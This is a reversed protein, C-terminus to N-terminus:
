RFDRMTLVPELEEPEDSDDGHHPCRSRGYEMCGYCSEGMGEYPPDYTEHDDWSGYDM